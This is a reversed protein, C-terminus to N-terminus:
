KIVGIDWKIVGIGGQRRRSIQATTGRTGDHRIGHWRRSLHRRALHRALHRVVTTAAAATHVARAGGRGYRGRRKRRVSGPSRRAGALAPGPSGGPGRAPGKPGQPTAARCSCAAATVIGPAAAHGRAMRTMCRKGAGPSPAGGLALRRRQSLTAPAAPRRRAPAAAAPLGLCRVIPTRLREGRRPAADDRNSESFKACRRGSVPIGTSGRARRAPPPPRGPGPIMNRPRGRGRHEPHQRASRVRCLAGWRGGPESPVSSARVRIIRTM